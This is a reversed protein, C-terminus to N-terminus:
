RKLAVTWIRDRMVRLLRGQEVDYLVREFAVCRSRGRVMM